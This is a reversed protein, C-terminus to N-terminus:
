RSNPGAFGLLLLARGRLGPLDDPIAALIDATAALKKAPLEGLAAAGRQM